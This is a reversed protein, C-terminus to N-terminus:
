TNQVYDRLLNFEDSDKTINEIEIGAAKLCYELPHISDARFYAGLLIKSAM